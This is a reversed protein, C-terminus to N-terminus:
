RTKRRAPHFRAGERSTFPHAIAPIAASADQLGFSGVAIQGTGDSEIFIVNSSDVVYFILGFGGNVLHSSTATLEGRGTAPSDVTYSGSLSRGSDPGNVSSNEDILGSLSTGTATFEAIDDVEGGASLNSGTLNLGYGQSSALAQSTQAFAAGTMIALSDTELMLVGGSSPYIAFQIAPVFGSLNLVNRGGVTGGASYTGSFPVQATSTTAADSVDELGGTFNGAGDSTMLGGASAAGNTDLGALTLVLSGSPITANTQSFADGALIPLADKEILKLHTSDIVYFDFTLTGFVSTLTATGPATTTGIIVTGTLGQQVYPIGDDNFDQVGATINGNQDLTFSGATAFANGTSDIGSLSFAYSAQLQSQTVTSASDLTGSGTGGNDFRTVFGHSSSTLVFDLAISGQSTGLTATGRGDATVTYPGASVALAPFAGLAPDNIDITGGTIQPSSTSGNATFTGAATFFNGSSDVGSVSFVYAGDLNATTFGGSPPPVVKPSSSGCASLFLLASFAFLVALGNRVSM